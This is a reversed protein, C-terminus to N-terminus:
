KINILYVLLNVTFYLIFYPKITNKKEDNLEKTFTIFLLYIINNINKKM